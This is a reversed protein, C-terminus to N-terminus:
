PTSVVGFIRRYLVGTVLVAWPLTWFLPVIVIGSLLTLVITLLGTLFIKFWKQTIAKRSAEMADWSGMRRDGILPMTLHYAVFLYIGPIVLLFFGITTFVGVLVGALIAPLWRDFYSFADGISTPLGGARRVALMTIGLGVVFGVANSSVQLMARGIAGMKTLPLGLVGFFIGMAIGVVIAAAWFTLKFGNTLGWAEKLVDEIQFDYRGALAAEISAQDGAAAPNVDSKPSEYPNGYSM